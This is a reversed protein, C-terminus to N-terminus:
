WARGVCFHRLAANKLAPWPMSSMWLYMKHHGSVAPALDLTSYLIGGSSTSPIGQHTERVKLSPLATFTTMAMWLLMSFFEHPMFTTNKPSLATNPGIKPNTSIPRPFFWTKGHYTRDPLQCAERHAPFLWHLTKPPFIMVFTTDPSSSIESASHFRPLLVSSYNGWVLFM